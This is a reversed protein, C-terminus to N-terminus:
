ENEDKPAPDQAPPDQPAPSSSEASGLPASAGFDGMDNSPMTPAEETQRGPGGQLMEMLKFEQPLEEDLQDLLRVYRRFDDTLDSAVVDELLQPYQQFIIAWKDWAQEFDQRAAELLAADMKEKASFVLNRAEVTERLQEVQCRTRWYEYNVQTRYNVIRQITTSTRLAQSALRHAKARIAEPARDALERNTITMKNRGSYWAAAEEQSTVQELGKALAAREEDTLTARRSALMEERIQPMLSILENEYRQAERAKAERDTLRINEGWTTPVVREGFAEWELLGKRWANEAKEDLYGEKEIAQAFNMQAKPNDAFFIHASKGRLSAGQNDVLDYADDYWLKSTLWNDPKGNAGRAESDVPVYDSLSEHFDNDDAYLRRFQRHEDAVGFKQGTYWGVTHFLRPERRNYRTGKILFDIGKKVWQYRFRFDDHEVSVNYSLNHSQFEWVSIFHPQLKSMQNVVAILAEWNETKKYTNAKGWLIAAAVGKLGLTALNMSASTPDIDGLEAQSLDYEARLQALKGGPRSQLGSPDGKAPNGIVYLPLLLLAIMTLYVIKRRFSANQIM